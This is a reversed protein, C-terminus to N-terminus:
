YWDPAFDIQNEPLAQAVVVFRGETVHYSCTSLTLLPDAYTATVGTDYLAAKQVQKLYDQFATETWHGSYQYYRFCRNRRSPLHM